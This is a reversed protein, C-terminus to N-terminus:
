GFDRWRSAPHGLSQRRHGRNELSLRDRLTDWWALREEGRIPVKYKDFWQELDLDIRGSTSVYDFVSDGTVVEPKVAAPKSIASAAPKSSTGALAEFVDHSVIEIKEPVHIMRAIRHPREDLSD